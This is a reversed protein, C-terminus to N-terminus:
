FINRQYSLKLNQIRSLKLDNTDVFKNKCWGYRLFPSHFFLVGRNQIKGSSFERVM